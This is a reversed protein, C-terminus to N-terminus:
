GEEPPKLMSEVPPPLQLHYGDRRLSEMVKGVDERALPREAHLVLEMVLEPAGFRELLAEPVADFGEERALYLYMEAKRPSRYIWCPVRGKTM